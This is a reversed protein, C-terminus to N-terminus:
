PLSLSKLRSISEREQEALVFKINSKTRELEPIRITELFNVRRKIKKIEDGLTILSQEISSFLIIDKLLSKYAERAQGLLPSNEFTNSGNKTLAVEFSPLKVGMVNKTNFELDFGKKAAMSVSRSVFVGSHAIDLSLIKYTNKTKEYINKQRSQYEESLKFFENILFDQKKKLLNHGKYALKIKKQVELLASRTPSVQSM